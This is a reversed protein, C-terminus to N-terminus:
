LIHRRRQSDDRHLIGSLTRDDYRLILDILGRARTVLNEECIWYIDAMYAYRWQEGTSNEILKRLSKRWMQNM